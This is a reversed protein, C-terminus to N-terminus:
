LHHRFRVSLERFVRSRDANSAGPISPSAGDAIPYRFMRPSAQTVRNRAARVLPDDHTARTPEDDGAHDDEHDTGRGSNDPCSAAEAVPTPYEAFPPRVNVSRTPSGFLRGFSIHDPSGDTTDKPSPTCKRTVLKYKGDVLANMPPGSTAHGRPGTSYSTATDAAVTVLAVVTCNLLGIM